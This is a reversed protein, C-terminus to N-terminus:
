AHHDHSSQSYVSTVIRLVAAADRLGPSPQRGLRIDELFEDLELAWSADARPYEWITTEPPGMEPLMRYYAIREVGYSGGLGSIDLKGTRGYIEVSFLNKWETCSAHLFAVKGAPTKLTLFANDDVPMNWFYTAAVGHVESFDGLFWRSLDILHVGQDILEGGGSVSPDARWERDYGVRGGHGYRGRLFMLDGIAGGDVLERAKRLAPHYRHNYGVRVLAGSRAAAEAVPALEEPCRAAPKEVLVHKGNAVAALAVPALSDHLTAVIVVDVDARGVVRQWDEEAAAGHPAALAEAREWVRDACAVLRCRGELSAARKRGILGCGVIAVNM